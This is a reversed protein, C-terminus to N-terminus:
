NHAWLKEETRVMELVATHASRAPVKRQLLGAEILAQPGMPKGFLYGQLETCQEAILVDMHQQSEVGEATTKMGLDKALHLVAHVIARCENSAEMQQVFSKDIKIKDFPFIQLLALSSYGTGFDDLSITVGLSRLARLTSLIEETDEVLATETIEFDVRAPDIEFQALAQAVTAVIAGSRAQLPSLNISIRISTDWTSAERLAERIIWDGVVNIMGAQELLPVFLDPSVSGRVPHNWRILTEFGGIRRSQTHFLPQFNLAFENRELADRLDHELAVAKATEAMMRPEFARHTNRGSKRAELLALDACKLLEPAHFSHEPCLAFGLSVTSQVKVGDIFVPKGLEYLIEDALSKADNSVAADNQLIVFGDSGLRAVMDNQGVLKELRRAIVQLFADGITHGFVDNITKFRDLDLSHLAFAPAEGKSSAITKGIAELLFERKPFGTLTDFHALQYIEKEAEHKETIDSAGGRYGEFVGSESFVPKASMQWWRTAGNLYVPACLDNFEDQHDLAARMQSLDDKAEQHDADFFGLLPQGELQAVTFGTREALADSARVLRGEADVEWLCDSVSQEFENLLLSIVSQKKELENAQDRLRVQQLWTRVYNAHNWFLARIMIITFCILVAIMIWKDQDTGSRLIGIVTGFSLSVVFPIAASPLTSLVFAAGAMMGACVCLIVTAEYGSAQPLFLVPCAAWTMGLLASETIPRSLAQV